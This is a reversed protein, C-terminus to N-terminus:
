DVREIFALCYYEPRNDTDENTNFPGTHEDHELDPYETGTASDDYVYITHDTGGAVSVCSCIVLPHTHDEHTAHDPHNNGATDGPGDNGHWNYGGTDDVDYDPGTTGSQGYQVIFRGSLDTTGNSGNALAWGDPILNPTGGSNTSWMKITGFDDDYCDTVIVKNGDPDELYGVVYDTFLATAKNARIGAYVNFAAGTVNNGDIDCEKVSVATKSSATVNSFGSQVKGWKLEGGGESYNVYWYGNHYHLLCYTDEPIFSTGVNWAIVEDGQSGETLSGSCTASNDFYADPLLYFPFRDCDTATPYTGSTGAKAITVFGDGPSMTWWRGHFWWALGITDEPIYTGSLNYVVIEDGTSGETVAEYCTSETFTAGELIYAPYRTCEDSASARSPYTGSTGFKVVKTDESYHTYWRGNFRWIPLIYDEPIYGGNTPYHALNYVYIESSPSGETLAEYCSTGDTWTVSPLITAPYRSCTTSSRAPYTGTGTVQFKAIAVPRMGDVYWKGNVRWALLVSNEPIYDQTASYVVMNDEEISGHTAVDTCDFATDSADDDFDISALKVAPFKVCDGDEDPYTPWDTTGTFKVVACDRLMLGAMHSGYANNSGDVLDGGTTIKQVGAILENVTKASLPDGPQHSNLM